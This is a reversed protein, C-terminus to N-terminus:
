RPRKAHQTSVNVAETFLVTSVLDRNENEIEIFSAVNLEGDRLESAMIQRLGKIAAERAATLDVLERGEEDEM